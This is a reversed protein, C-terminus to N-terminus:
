PTVEYVHIREPTNWVIAMVDGLQAIRPHDNYGSVQGLVQLQFRTGGDTSRWTKLSTKGDAYSRWVIWVLPGHSLVDAHEAQPDPLKRITNALPEGTPGLRAYRAAGEQHRVGYWVLHFGAPADETPTAVALGPGHHPCANIQWEDYSARTIPRPTGNLAVFAHDRTQQGFVHRWVGFMEGQTNTTLAIRCCECSNDAVKQDPGFTRAGDHSVKQYLAAGPYNSGSGTIPQDRKDIWLTILRGQGDFAISEFRHTILQRDDHVTFPRSFTQGGDDSRLMRINGTYPKALPQTYSIVAWGNPGFAIKPRNEGDAAIEDSGTDIIAPDSFQVPGPFATHRVYLQGSSTLGTIWLRGDPSFAAGMALQPRKASPPRAHQAWGNLCFLLTLLCLWRPYLAQHKMFHAKEGYSM